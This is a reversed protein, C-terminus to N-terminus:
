AKQNPVTEGTWILNFAPNFVPNPEYLILEGNEVRAKGAKNADEDEWIWWPPNDTYNGDSFDDTWLVEGQGYLDTILLLVFCTIMIILFSERKPPAIRETRM